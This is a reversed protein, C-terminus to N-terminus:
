PINHAYQIGKCDFCNKEVKLLYSEIADANNAMLQRWQTGFQVAMKEFMEKGSMALFNLRDSTAAEQMLLEGVCYLFASKNFKLTLCFMKETDCFMQVDARIGYLSNQEDGAQDIGRVRLFSSGCDDCCGGCGYNYYTNISGSYVDVAASDYTITVENQNTSYQSEIIVEEDAAASLTHTQPNVGDSIIIDLDVVADPSKFYFRPIYINSLATQVKSINLGPNGAGAAIIEDTDFFPTEISEISEVISNNILIGSMEAMMFDKAIRFKETVMNKASLYKGNEALALYKISVGPLDEIYMGSVPVVVECGRQIGIFNDICSMSLFPRSM